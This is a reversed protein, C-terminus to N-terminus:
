RGRIVDRLHEAAEEGRVGATRLDAFVRPWPAVQLDAVRTSLRHTTLTPFRLLRLRGGELPRLDAKSAVAELQAPTEADVYVDASNVATLLPALVLSAASGTVAWSVKARDWARGAEALGAVADRWTVGVRMSVGTKAGAVASAYSEIFQDADVLQRASEKGRSAGAKLIGLDVLVRLATTCSGSSLGTAQQTTAVTPKTGCLVAEAVAFVAGTWHPSPKDAVQVHGTRSVIMSPIAIEAAGTEDLWGIGMESLMERAGPSMRRAVVIDPHTRQSGLLAKVQRLWGEGAWKLQVPSGNIVLDAGSGGKPSVIKAARPLVARLAAVLRKEVHDGKITPRM